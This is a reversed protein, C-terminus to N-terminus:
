LLITNKVVPFPGEPWGTKSFHIIAGAYGIRHLFLSYFLELCGYLEDILRQIEHETFRLEDAHAAKNRTRTWTSVLAKEFVGNSSLAHLAGKVSQSQAGKLSAVARARARDGIQLKELEPIAKAVQTLFEEDPIGLDSFHTKVVGEIATTLVLARNELDGDWAGLVRYWYGVIPSLPQKETKLFAQVLAEINKADDPWTVPVPSQLRYHEASKRRSHIVQRRDGDSM